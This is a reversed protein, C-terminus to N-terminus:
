NSTMNNWANEARECLRSTAEAQVWISVARALNREWGFHRHLWVMRPRDEDNIGIEAFGRILAAADYHPLDMQRRVARCALPISRLPSCNV